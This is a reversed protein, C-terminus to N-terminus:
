LSINFLRCTNETCKDILQQTDMEKIEAIKAATDAILRSDCRTGRQPEPAMYPCDTELLLRDTPVVAVAERAKKANKFTVVGTFSLYMGLSLVEKATESSGSFCHMVGKPKYRHLIDMCDLTADRSHIVVPMDYEKAMKLQEEFYYLQLDRDYNEMHYDLGIEGIGVVKPLKLLKEMEKLYGESVLSIDEPHIGVVTYFFSYKKSYEVGFANTNPNTGAHILARVGGDKLSNIVEERDENFADDCYHCHSDFINQM